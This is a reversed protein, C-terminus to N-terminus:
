NPASTDDTTSFNLDRLKRRVAQLTQSLSEANKELAKMRSNRASQRLASLEEILAALKLDLDPISSALKARDEATPGHGDRGRFRSITANLERVKEGLVRFEELKENEENRRKNLLEAQASVGRAVAEARSQADNLQTSLNTVEGSVSRGCDAFRTLLKQVYDADFDATMDTSNIKAGIRELEALYGDLALVSKVLLSDRKTKNSM